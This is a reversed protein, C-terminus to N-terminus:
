DLGYGSTVIPPTASVIKTTFTQCSPICVINAFWGRGTGSANSTFRITMCGTGNRSTTEVILNPNNSFDSACGLSPASTNSGDFFCLEDGAALDIDNFGLAIHNNVPDDSCITLTYSQNNAYNSAADGTDFFSAGCTGTSISGNRMLIKTQGVTKTVFFLSLALILTTAIKNM